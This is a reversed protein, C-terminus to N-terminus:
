HYEQMSSLQTPFCAVRSAQKQKRKNGAVHKGATDIVKVVETGPDASSRM